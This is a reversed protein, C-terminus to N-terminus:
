NKNEKRRGSMRYIFSDLIYVKSMATDLDLSHLQLVCRLYSVKRM